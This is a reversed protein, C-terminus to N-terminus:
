ACRVSLTSETDFLNSTISIAEALILNHKTTRVVLWSEMSGAVNSLKKTRSLKHRTAGRGNRSRKDITLSLGPNGLKDAPARTEVDRGGQLEHPRLATTTLKTV